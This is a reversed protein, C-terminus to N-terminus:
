GLKAQLMTELGYLVIKRKLRHREIGMLESARTQNGEAARLARVILEREAQALSMVDAQPEHNTKTVRTVAPPLDESLVERGAGFVYAYEIANGLERINGKWEHGILTEILGPGITKRQEDYLSALEDLFHSALAPIDGVRDRLPPTRVQAVNLRYYLDARFTGAEVMAGLDRHTAAIIRVDVAVARSAGVPVVVREQICRLLKAQAALPMEGIEDLFLTGGDASRIFGLTNQQAGTFAGKVHGFMQSEFLTQPLTSCDIPVFVERARPSGAHIHRAVLEKGTGTEGVILVTCRRPAVASVRTRLLEMAPSHGIM